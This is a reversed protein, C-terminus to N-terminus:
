HVPWFFFLASMTRNIGREGVSISACLPCNVLMRHTYPTCVSVPVSQSHQTSSNETAEAYLNCHVAASLYSAVDGGFSHRLSMRPHTTAQVPKSLSPRHLSPCMYRFSPASVFENVWVLVLLTMCGHPEDCLSHSCTRDVVPQVSIGVAAVQLAGVFSM